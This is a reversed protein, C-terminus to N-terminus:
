FTIYTFCGSVTDPTEQIDLGTREKSIEVTANGTQFFIDMNAIPAVKRVFKLGNGREEPARGSLIETFATRLAEADNKLSPKVRKLTKLIGQGKDALVIQGKAVDYGFFIGRIDPWNGINHDYSNNGIESTAAVILSFSASLDPNLRLDRELNEIRSQFVATSPCYFDPPPLTGNPANLWEIAQNYLSDGLFIRIKRVSFRRSGGPTRIATLKGNKDWARLTTPTVGLIKAAKGISIYEEDM